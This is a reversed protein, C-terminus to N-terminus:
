KDLEEMIELAIKEEDFDIRGTNLIQYKEHGKGALLVIDGPRAAGIAHRIAERRNEIVTFPTRCKKVGPLIENIIDIPTESRPNDSTVIVYDSLRAATQGMVPRKTRDRDGGCGFLTIVRGDAMERAASLINKLGDPTHAYDIMVTYPRSGSIIQARGPVSALSAAAPLVEGFDLGLACVAGIAALANSVTFTGVSSVSVRGIGGRTVALFSVGSPKQKIDKAVFDASNYVASYTFKRCTVSGAFQRGTEDDINIVASGASEFLKYKAMRYNEMTKHYDLHDQTLNTFVATDFTIGCVRKQVISHSSVEMVCYEVGASVMQSLLSCLEYPEPTTAGSPLTKDGIMNAVTGILGTKKGLNDLINKIYYVTSTKGNTGTVGVFKMKREPHGFWASSLEFMARRTDPVTIHPLTSDTQRECVIAAAGKQQASLAYDHGDAAGGTLCVFLCGGTVRRSDYVIDTIEIDAYAKDYQAELESLLDSLRM